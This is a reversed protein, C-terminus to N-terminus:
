DPKGVVRRRSLSMKDDGAPRDKVPVVFKLGSWVQNITCVKVDVLGDALGIERIKNEALDTRVGSSKKPWAIWLMGAPALRRSWSSVSTRLEKESTVFNVVLDLTGKGLNIIQCEALADRLEKQVEGPLHPLAVRSNAKIGLKKALPTGSYGAM